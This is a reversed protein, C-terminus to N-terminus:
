FIIITLNTLYNLKYNELKLYSICLSENGLKLAEYFLEQDVSIQDIASNIDILGFLVKIRTLEKKSNQSEFYYYGTTRLAM